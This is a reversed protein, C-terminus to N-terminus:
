EENLKVLEIHVFPAANKYIDYQGSIRCHYNIDPNTMNFANISVQPPLTDEETAPTDYPETIRKEDNYEEDINTFEYFDEYCEYSFRAFFRLLIPKDPDIDDPLHEPNVPKDQFFDSLIEPIHSITKQKYKLPLVFEQYDEDSIGDYEEMEIEKSIGSSLLDCLDKLGTVTGEHDFLEGEVSVYSAITKKMEQSASEFDNFLKYNRIIPAGYEYGNLKGKAVNSVEYLLWKTM